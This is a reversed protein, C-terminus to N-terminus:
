VLRILRLTFCYTTPHEDCLMEVDPFKEQIESQLTGYGAGKAVKFGKM